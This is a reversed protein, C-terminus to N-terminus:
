LELRLKNLKINNAEIRRQQLAITLMLRKIGDKPPEVKPTM